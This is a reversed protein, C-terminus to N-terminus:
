QNYFILNLLLQTNYDLPICVIILHNYKTDFIKEIDDENDELLYWINEKIDNNNSCVANLLCIDNINENILKKLEKEQEQISKNTIHSNYIYKKIDDINDEILIIETSPKLKIFIEFLNHEKSENLYKEPNLRLDNLINYFDKSMKNYQPEKIFSYNINPENKLSKNNQILETNFSFPDKKCADTVCGM